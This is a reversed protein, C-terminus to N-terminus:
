ASRRSRFRRTARRAFLLLALLSLATGPEPVPTISGGGALEYSKGDLYANNPNGLSYYLTMGNGTINAIQEIGGQLDLHDVYVAGSPIADADALRLSRGAALSLTGWAFNDDYGQFSIGLDKGNVQLVDGAGGSILHLEAAATDWQTASTSHNLLDGSVFFRDGVGGVWAGGPGINVSSFFNDAPDSIFTGNETYTGAFTVTTSTNKFIGNNTVNGTFIAPNYAVRIQKGASNSVNGNITSTGGSFTMSGNNTFSAARFTGYGSIQGANTLAVGNNDFTGGTLNILGSNSALGASVLVKNGTTAAITGANNVAGSFILTGGVAEITGNNDVDSGIAGSGQITGTSSLKGGILSAGPGAIQITGASSFPNTINTTGGQVLLLGSNSFSTQITGRGAITGTPGNFLPTGNPVIAGNLNITGQNSLPQNQLILQRGAALDITGSNIQGGNAGLTLNGGAQTILGVNSFLSSGGIEGFGTIGGNNFSSNTLNLTAGNLNIQGNNTLTSTTLLLGNNLTMDAFNTLNVGVAFDSSNIIVAGHNILSGNFLGNNYTFTGSNNLVGFFIGNNMTLSGHAAIGLNSSLLTGDSLTWAGGISNGAAITLGGSGTKTLSGTGSVSGTLALDFLGTITTPGNIFLTNDLTRNTTIAQLIGGNITLAGGGGLALNSGILLMGDNLAVGGVLNNNGSIALTGAGDKILGGNFINAPITLDAFAGGDEVTISRSVGGFNLNGSILNTSSGAASSINNQLTITGAGTLISGGSNFFDVGNITENHGALDLVGGAGLSVNSSDAIQNDSELRVTALIAGGISLNGPIATNATTKGLLLTGSNVTTLGYNNPASGSFRLTGTGNKVLSGSTTPSEVAASIDFDVAAAGDAVTIIRTGNNLNLHGSITAPQSSTTSAIGPGDDLILDGAGTTINGGTLTVHQINQDFGNLDLLGPPNVSINTAPDVQQNGLYRVVDANLGGSFDGVGLFVSGAIVGGTKALELTGSSIIIQNSSGNAGAGSLRLTGAGFKNVVGNGIVASIDLDVAAAGDAITFNHSGGNTDLTGSITASGAAASTTVSGQLALRGVGTSSISGGTMNLNSAVTLAGAGITTIGGNMTLNQYADNFGNLDLVGSSNIVPSPLQSQNSALYQVTDVGVGDGITLTGGFARLGATKNFIVTGANITFPGSFVNNAGGSLTLTGAGVKTLSGTGAIGGSIISNGTVANFVVINSANISMLSNFTLPGSIAGWNQTANINISSNITQTDADNNTIGGPGMALTSGGITFIGATNNFTISNISYGVDVNPTLRTAGGFILNATGNNAPAVLGIWNNGDTWNNTTASGGNWTQASASDVLLFLIVILVFRYRWRGLM